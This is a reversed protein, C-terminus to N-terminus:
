GEKGGGMKDLYWESLNDSFFSVGDSFHCFTNIAQVIEVNDAYSAALYSGDGPLVKM